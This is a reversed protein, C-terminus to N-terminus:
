LMTKRAWEPFLTKTWLNSFLKNEVSEQLSVFAIMSRKSYGTVWIM